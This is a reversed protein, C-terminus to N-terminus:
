GALCLASGGVPASLADSGVDVASLRLRPFPYVPDTLQLDVTSGAPYVNVETGAAITVSGIGLVQMSGDRGVLGTSEDLGIVGTEGLRRVVPSFWRGIRFRDFHPAVVYGHVLGLGPILRFPNPPYLNVRLDFLDIAGASSGTVGAGAQWRAEVMDWIPTGALARMLRNPVGGPLVVVDAEAVAEMARPDSRHEPIVVEVRAGLKTWQDYALRGTAAAQREFTAVPLVVVNPAFVGVEDLMRRDLPLTPEYHELGGLLGVPGPM